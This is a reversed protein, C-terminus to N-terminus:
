QILRPQEVSCKRTVLCLMNCQQYLQPLIACTISLDGHISACRFSADSQDQQICLNPSVFLFYSCFLFVELPFYEKVRHTSSISQHTNPHAWFLGALPSTASLLTGRSSQSVAARTWSAFTKRDRCAVQNDTCPHATVHM